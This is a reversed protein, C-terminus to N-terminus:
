RLSRAIALAQNLTHTGEIRLTLPGQQWLLVNGALRIRDTQIAGTSEQFIVEHTAGSLYIGHGGNVRVPQAHTDPGILKSIFPTSTGRLEIILVPGTVLSIRGGAVDRDLYATAPQTPLLATFGAAHRARNLPIREGLGLRAGAPLPPLRPVREISVGRLGLAHLIAHRTSPVAM